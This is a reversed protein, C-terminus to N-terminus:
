QELLGQRSLMVVFQCADNQAQDAGLEHEEQLVEALEHVTAGQVLRLWLPVGTPNISLYTGSKLDLVVIDDEIQRWSVDESRLRHREQLRDGDM